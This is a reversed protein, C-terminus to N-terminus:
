NVSYSYDKEGGIEFPAPQTRARPTGYLDQL